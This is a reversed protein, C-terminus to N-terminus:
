DNSKRRSVIFLVAAAVMILCGGVTFVMTGIGGTSPLAVMKTNPIEEGVIATGAGDTSTLDGNEDVSVTVNESTTTTAVYAAQVGDEEGTFEDMAYFKSDKIWGVQVDSVADEVVTTYTSETESGTVTTTATAWSATVDFVDTNLSYGAPAVLEKVYYTGYSVNTSVAYGNANTTVVDVLKTCDADSYIGFVAGALGDADDGEGVKYLAVQYTYVTEKDEKSTVGNASDPVPNDTTPVFTNGSTPDNAYYFDVDNVEGTGGVVANENVIASYTLTIAYTEGTEANSVLNDYTFNLYYGNLDAVDVLEAIVKDNYTFVGDVAKVDTGNITITLSNSDYTLGETMTDAMFLTKNAANAPYSPLTPNVTYTVVSGVGATDKDGDAVTGDSIEKDVSPTSKKAVADTGFLYDSEASIEGGVLAGTADYSATLLIPNYVSSDTASTIVAIYAGAGVTKEYTAGVGADTVTSIPTITGAKIGNVITTIDNATLGDAVAATTATGEAWTYGIFTGAEAEASYNGEAIQYLTVTVTDGEESVLNRIAITTTDSSSGEAEATAAFTTMSMGLVMAMSLLVAIITKMKKM